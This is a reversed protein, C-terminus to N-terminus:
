SLTISRWSGGARIQLASPVGNNDYLLIIDGESWNSRTDRQAATLSPANNMLRWEANSESTGWRFMPAGIGASGVGLDWNMVVNGRQKRAPDDNTPNFLDTNTTGALRGLARGTLAAASAANVAQLQRTVPVQGAVSARDTFTSAGSIVIGTNSEGGLDFHPPGLFTDNSADWASEASLGGPNLIQLGNAGGAELQIVRLEGICNAARVFHCHRVVGGRCPFPHSPDVLDHKFNLFYTPQTPLTPPNNEFWSSDFVPDITGRLQVWPNSDPSTGEFTCNTFVPMSCEALFAYHSAALTQGKGQVLFACNEFFLTTCGRGIFLAGYRRSGETRVRKCDVFISITGADNTTPLAAGPEDPEASGVKEAEKGFGSVLIAWGPANAIAVDEILVSHMPLSKGGREYETLASSFIPEPHPHVDVFDRRGIAIGYGEAESAAQGGSTNLLMLGRVSSYDGRVRLMGVNTTWQLVTGKAPNEHRGEGVLHCPRDCPLYLTDTLLYLGAPVQVTGGWPPLADIAAQITPFDRANLVAVPYPDGGGALGGLYFGATSGASSGSVTYCFTEQSTYVVVSGVSDVTASQVPNQGQSDTYVTIARSTCIKEGPSLTITELGLYDLQLSNTGISRVQFDRDVGATGFVNDGVQLGGSGDVPVTVTDHENCEVPSTVTAGPPHFAVTAGAAPVARLAPAVPNKFLRLQARFTTTPSM